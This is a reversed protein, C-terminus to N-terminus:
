NKIVLCGFKAKKLESCASYVDSKSNIGVFQAKYHRKGNRFTHPETYSQYSAILGGVQNQARSLLDVANEQSPVIAVQLRWTGPTNIGSDSVSGLTNTSQARVQVIEQYHHSSQKLAPIPGSPKNINKTNTTPLSVLEQHREVKSSESITM